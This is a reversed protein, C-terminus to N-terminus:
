QKLIKIESKFEGSKVEVFYVGAAYKKMPLMVKNSQEESLFATNLKRGVIDTLTFETKDNVDFPLELFLKDSAPVPYANINNFNAKTNVSTINTQLTNTVTNTTVPTNYDFFIDAFNEITTGDTLGQLPVISFEVFGHSLPENINSDPLNINFFKWTLTRNNIVLQYTHSAGEMMFSNLDLDTDIEDQVFVHIASATGTNQFNIRYHLRQDHHVDGTTGYGHPSVLKDNPDFSGIVTETISYTNNTLDFDTCPAIPTISSSFNLQTGLPTAAPLNFEASYGFLNTPKIMGTFWTVTHLINDVIGNAPNVSIVTGALPDFNLVVTGSCSDIGSNSINASIFYNFGPRIENSSSNYIHFNAGPQTSFYGFNNNSFSGGTLANIVISDPTVTASDIIQYNPKITYNGSPLNFTYIANSSGSTYAHYDLGSTNSHAYVMSNLLADTGANYVGNQNYDAYVRGTITTTLPAIGFHYGYHGTGSNFNAGYFNSSPFTLSYGLPINFQLVTLAHPVLIVYNGSADSTAKYNTLMTYLFNTAGAYIDINPIGPEGADFIGDFDLDNFVTGYITDPVVDCDAIVGPWHKEIANPAPNIDSIQAQYMIQGPVPSSFSHNTGNQITTSGGPAGEYLAWGNTFPPTTSINATFTTDCVMSSVNPFNIVMNTNGNNVQVKRCTTRSYSNFSADFDLVSLCVQYDGAAAYTHVDNIVSSTAGDGFDLTALGTGIGCGYYYGSFSATLGNVTYNFEPYVNCGTSQFINCNEFVCSDNTVTDTAFIKICVKSFGAPLILPASTQTQSALADNVYWEYKYPVWNPQLTQQHTGFEMSVGGMSAVSIKSTIGCPQASIKAAVFLVFAIAKLLPYMRNM